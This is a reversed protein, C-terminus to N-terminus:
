RSYHLMWEYVNMNNEKYLPDLAQTWADHGWAKFMTLRAPIGPHNGNILGVFDTAVSSLVFPDESNHFDWLALNGHAIGAAYLTKDASFSEGGLPAVAAFLSPYLGGMETTLIGGMSLGSLYVRAPDTRYKKLAYRIFSLVASDTPYANFQPSLVIFSFHHGNVTFDPPFKQENITKAVGDVLVLPLDTTGDGLQGGGHLFILLPYKKTTSQYHVPLAEYYGGIFGNVNAAVATQVPPMTEIINNTSQAEDNNHKTCGQAALIVLIVFSIKIVRNHM